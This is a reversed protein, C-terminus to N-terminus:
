INGVSEYRCGGIHQGPFHTIFRYAIDVKHCIFWCFEPKVINGNFTHTNGIEQFFLAVSIATTLILDAAALRYSSRTCFGRFCSPVITDNCPDAGSAPALPKRFDLFSTLGSYIKSQYILCFYVNVFQLRM